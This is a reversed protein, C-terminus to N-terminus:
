WRAATRDAVPSCFGSTAQSTFRRATLVMRSRLTSSFTFFTNQALEIATKPGVVGLSFVGWCVDISGVVM